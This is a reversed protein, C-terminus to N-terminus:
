KNANKRSECDAIRVNFFDQVINKSRANRNKGKTRRQLRTCFSSIRMFTANKILWLIAFLAPNVCMFIALAFSDIAVFSCRVSFSAIKNHREFHFESDCLVRISRTKIRDRTRTSRSRVFISLIERGIIRAVRVSHVAVM